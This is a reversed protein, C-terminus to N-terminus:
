NFIPQSGPFSLCVLNANGDGTVITFDRTFFHSIIKTHSRDSRYLSINGFHLNQFCPYQAKFLFFNHIKFFRWFIISKSYGGRLNKESFTQGGHFAKEPFLGWVEPPHATARHLNIIKHHNNLLFQYNIIKNLTPILFEM